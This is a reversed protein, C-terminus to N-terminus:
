SVEWTQGACEKVVANQAVSLSCTNFVTSYYRKAGGGNDELRWLLIFFAGCLAKNIGDDFPIM